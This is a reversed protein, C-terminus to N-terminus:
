LCADHKVKKKARLIFPWSFEGLILLRVRVYEAYVVGMVNHKAEM